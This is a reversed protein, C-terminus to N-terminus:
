EHQEELEEEIDPEHEETHKRVRKKAPLPTLMMNIFKGVIKPEMDATGVHILDARIKKILDMGIEKHQMERGRFVMVMKVKMGKMMFQEARRIKVFYDHQDINIHFKLEKVKDATNHKKTEKDKKAMEYRFKGFDLIKCVPPNANPSVEVLDLSHQKAAIIADQTNMSGMPQGNPGIVFVERARIKQNARFSPQNNNHFHKKPYIAM